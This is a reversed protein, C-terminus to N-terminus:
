HQIMIIERNYKSGATTYVAYIGSPWQSVDVMYQKMGPFAQHMMKGDANYIIVQELTTTGTMRLTHSAPNPYLEMPLSTNQENIAATFGSSYVITVSGNNEHALLLKRGNNLDYWTYTNSNPGLNNTRLESVLGVNSYTAQPLQLTGHGIFNVTRMGNQYSSITTASSYNTKAYTDTFSQGLAFPFILHKDFDTYDEHEASLPYEGVTVLSDANILLYEYAVLAALAPDCQVYNSAPYNIAYPTLSPQAFQLSILPVGGAPILGSANWTVGSGVIGPLTTNFSNNDALIVQNIHTLSQSFSAWTLTQAHALTSGLLMLTIMIHKM